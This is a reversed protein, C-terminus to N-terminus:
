SPACAPAGSRPRRAVRDHQDAVGAVLLDDPVIPSAGSAITARRTPRPRRPARAARRVRREGVDRLGRERDVLGALDDVHQPAAERLDLPRLALVDAVRGGVALPRHLLQEVSTPSSSTTPERLEDFETRSTSTARAPRRARAGRRRRARSRRASARRCTSITPTVDPADAGSRSTSRTHSHNRARPTSSM